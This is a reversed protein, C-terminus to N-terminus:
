KRDGRIENNQKDVTIYNIAQIRYGEGKEAEINGFKLENIWRQNLDNVLDNYRKVGHSMLAMGIGIGTGTLAKAGLSYDMTHSFAFLGTSLVGTVCGAIVELGAKLMKKDKTEM